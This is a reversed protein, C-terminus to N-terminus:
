TDLGVLRWSEGVAHCFEVYEDFPILVGVPAGEVTVLTEHLCGSERIFYDVDYKSVMTQPDEINRMPRRTSQRTRLITLGLPAIGPRQNIRPYESEIARAEEYEADLRTSFWIVDKRRVERWWSKRGHDAFRQDIDSTVGVYILGGAGDYLRYTASMVLPHADNWVHFM